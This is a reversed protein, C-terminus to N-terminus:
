ERRAITIIERSSATIPERNWDGYQAEVEFGADALFRGLAPEGRELVPVDVEQAAVQEVDGGAAGALAQPGEAVGVGGLVVLFLVSRRRM